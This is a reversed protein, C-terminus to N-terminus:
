AARPESGRCAASRSRPTPGESPSRSIAVGGGPLPPLLVSITYTGPPVQAGTSDIQAVLDDLTAGPALTGQTPNCPPAPYISVNMSNQVTFPCGPLTQVSSATDNSLAVTIPCGIPAISPGVVAGVQAAAPLALVALVTVLRSRSSMM